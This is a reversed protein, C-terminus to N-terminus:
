AAPEAAPVPADFPTYTARFEPLAEIRALRTALASTDDPPLPLADRLYTLYCALAVDAQTIGYGVLWPQGIRRECRRELEALGDDLQARCRQAWPSGHMAAPQFIRETVLAIGKDLVGTVLGLWARVDRRKAADAPLLKRGPTAGDDLHDAILSAETLVLGDADIWAPVRGVPNVTRLRLQDAGVSWPQQTYAVGLLSATVAVRRVYPSDYQGILVPGTTM